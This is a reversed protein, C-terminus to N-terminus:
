LIDYEIKLIDDIRINQNNKFYLISNVEDIKKITDNLKLYTGGSKKSDHEFYTIRVVINDHLHDKLYRLKDNIEMIKDDSLEIKDYVIRDKENIEDSYGSLASFPLFQTARKELSMKVHSSLYPYELNIISAYKKMDIM